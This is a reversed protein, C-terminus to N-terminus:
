VQISKLNITLHFIVLPAIWLFTIYLICIVNLYAHVNDVKKLM